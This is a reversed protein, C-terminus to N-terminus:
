KNNKFLKNKEQNEQSHKLILPLSLFHSAGGANWMHMRRDSWGFGSAHALSDMTVRSARVCHAPRDVCACMDRLSRECLKSLRRCRMVCRALHLASRAWFLRVRRCNRVGAQSCWRVSSCPSSCKQTARACSTSPYKQLRVNRASVFATKTDPM